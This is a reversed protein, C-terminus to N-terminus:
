VVSLSSRKQYNKKPDIIIIKNIEKTMENYKISKNNTQKLDHFPLISVLSLKISM